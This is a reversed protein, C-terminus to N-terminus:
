IEFQQFYRIQPPSDLFAGLKGLVGNDEIFKLYAQHNDVSLWEEDLLMESNENNFLVSVRLNGNFGRVNPLNTELFPLLEQFHDPKIQCNLTVRISM